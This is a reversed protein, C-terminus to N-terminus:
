NLDKAILALNDASSTVKEFTMCLESIVSHLHHIEHKIIENHVKSEQMVTLIQSFQEETDNM